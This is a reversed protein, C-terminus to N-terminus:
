CDPRLCVWPFPSDQPMRRNREQPVYLWEHNHDALDTRSHHHYYGAMEPFGLGEYYQRTRSRAAPIEEDSYFPSDLIHIEGGTTLLPVLAQLLHPLNDFYQIASAIVIVDFLHNHFPACFIDAIIWSLKRRDAFSRQAQRLEFRNQDLGVVSADATVAISNALWGNGCGLELVNSHRRFRALYATLRACSAARAQWEAHLPHDSPVLPLQRVVDDPYLRGEKERVRLYIEFSDSM